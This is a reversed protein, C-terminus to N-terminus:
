AVATSAARWTIEEPVVERHCRDHDREFCLVAVEHHHAMEALEDLSRVADPDQLMLERFHGGGAARRGSRAPERDDRPNGLARLLGRPTPM